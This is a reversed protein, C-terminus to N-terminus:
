FKFNLVYKNGYSEVDVRGTAELKKVLNKLDKWSGIEEYTDRCYTRITKGKREFLSLCKLQSEHIIGMIWLFIKGEREEATIPKRCEAERDLERKILLNLRETETLVLTNM